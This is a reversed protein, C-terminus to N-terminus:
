CCSKLLLFGHMAWVNKRRRLVEHMSESGHEFECEKMVRETITGAGMEM